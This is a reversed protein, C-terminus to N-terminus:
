RFACLYVLVSPTRLLLHRVNIKSESITELCPRSRADVAPVVFNGSFDKCAEQLSMCPSKFTARNICFHKKIRNSASKHQQGPGCPNQKSFGSTCSLCMYKQLLASWAHTATGTIPTRAEPYVDCKRNDIIKTLDHVDGKGLGTGPDGNTFDIMKLPLASVRNSRMESM